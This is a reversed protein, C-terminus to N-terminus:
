KLDPLTPADYGANIMIESIEKAATNLADKLELQGGIAQNLRLETVALVQSAEPILFTLRATPIAEALPKMWRFEEAESMPGELVARSVPASGARAYAEQAESTQFWELFALAALKREDPVNKPVGALWHGLPTAGPFSSSAPTAAYNVKGVVASQNADDFLGPSMVSIVHAAKGTAMNQIMNTM